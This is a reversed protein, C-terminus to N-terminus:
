KVETKFKWIFGGARKRKGCATKSITSREINTARHAEMVSHFEAIFEGDKTFQIVAKAVNNDNIGLKLFLHSKRYNEEWTCIRINDMRYSIKDDLRDISPTLNKDYNSSQWTDFLIHFKQSAMMYDYLDDRSYTPNPMKRKKCSDKQHNYIRFILNRKTKKNM